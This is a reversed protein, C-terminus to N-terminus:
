WKCYHQKDSKRMVIKILNMIHKGTQPWTQCLYEICTQAQADRSSGTLAVVTEIVKDADERHGQESLFALSDWNVQFTVRYADASRSRSIKRPSPLYQIIGQRITKMINPEACTLQYERKLSALLWQYAPAEVVLKGYRSLRKTPDHEDDAKDDEEDEMDDIELYPDIQKEPSNIAEQALDEFSQMEHIDSDEPDPMPLHVADYTTNEQNQRWSQVIFTKDVKAPTRGSSHALAERLFEV